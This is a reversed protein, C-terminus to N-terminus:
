KLLLIPSEDVANMIWLYSQTDQKYNAEGFSHIRGQKQLENIQAFEERAGKAYVGFCRGGRKPQDFFFFPFMAPAM